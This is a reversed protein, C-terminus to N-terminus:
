AKSVPQAIGQPTSIASDSKVRAQWSIFAEEPSKGVAREAAVLAESLHNINNTSRWLHWLAKSREYASRAAYRPDRHQEARELLAIAKKLSSQLEEPSAARHEAARWLAAGHKSRAVDNYEAGDGLCALVDFAEAARSYLRRSFADEASERLERRSRGAPTFPAEHTGLGKADPQVDLVEGAVASPPEGSSEDRETEGQAPTWAALVHAPIVAYTVPELEAAFRHYEGSYGAAGPERRLDTVRFLLATKAEGDIRFFPEVPWEVSQQSKTYRAQIGASPSPRDPDIGVENGGTVFTKGTYLIGTLPDRYSTALFGFASADAAPEFKDTLGDLVEVRLGRHLEGLLKQPVPVHALKNRFSNIAGLRGVRSLHPERFTSPVPAIRAWPDAFALPRNPNSSLYAALDTLFPDDAKLATEGLRRLLEIWAGISGGLPSQEIDDDDDVSGSEPRLGTLAARLTTMDNADSPATLLTALRSALLSALCVALAEQIHILRWIHEYDAGPEIVVRRRYAELANAIPTWLRPKPM